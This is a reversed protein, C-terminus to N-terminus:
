LCSKRRLFISRAPRWSFGPLVKWQDPSYSALMSLLRSFADFAVANKDSVVDDKVGAIIIPNGNEDEAVLDVSFDGANKEREANLLKVKITESLVDLNDELWKTFDLAEHKWVERLPVHKIKGIM